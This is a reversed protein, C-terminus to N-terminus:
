WIDEGVLRREIFSILSKQQNVHCSMIDENFIVRDNARKFHNGITIEIPKNSVRNMWREPDLRTQAFVNRPKPHVPIIDRSLPGRRIRFGTTWCEPVPRSLKRKDAMNIRTRENILIFWNVVNNISIPFALRKKEFSSLVTGLFYFFRVPEVYNYM